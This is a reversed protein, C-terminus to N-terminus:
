TAWGGWPSPMHYPVTILNAEIQEIAGDGIKFLELMYFSHPRRIPSQVMTGDTLRYDALRGCHDIFVMTFVLGREEDVLPFRRGRVRDDFRYNGLRMQEECGLKAIAFLPFAPNNTTQVGNEVRNCDAHFRTFVAGDNLQLTDFYGNAITVMRERPVRRKVPLTENLVLKPEFKPDPLKFGEDADRVVIMEVEAVSGDNVGLRLAFPSVNGSEDLLGFMGVQGTLPDAFRLDYDGLGTATNWAGDGVMLAVNNETFHVQSAWEVAAPNRDALAQLYGDLIAYLDQRGLPTTVANRMADPLPM